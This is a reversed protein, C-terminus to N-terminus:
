SISCSSKNKAGSNPDENNNAKEITLILSEFLDNVSNNQKASVEVFQAKIQNAFKKGEEFSVARQTQLDLKNGVLIIPAVFPGTLDLLKDYLIKVVEFSKRSDISYVLCFGNVDLTYQTPFLSYEDQGATDVLKLYYEQGKIKVTKTM